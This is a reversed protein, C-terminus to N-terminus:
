NNFFHLDFSGHSVVECWNCSGDDFLRCIILVPSSTSFLSGEEVTPPFTVQYLWWPSYCPTEKFFVLFLFVMHDLLGVGEPCIGPSFWIQFSVHVRVNMAASNIVALIHFCGLHGKVSSHLSLTNYVISYWEAIFLIFYKAMQLLM